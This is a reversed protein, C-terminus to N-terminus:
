ADRMANVYADVEHVAGGDYASTPQSLRLLKATKDSTNTAAAKAPRILVGDPLMQYQLHGPATLQFFNVIERPLTVQNKERVRIIPM